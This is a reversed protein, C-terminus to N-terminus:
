PVLGYPEEMPEDLKRHLSTLLEVFADIEASTKAVTWDNHSALVFPSLYQMYADVIMKRTPPPQALKRRILSPLEAIPGLSTASPLLSVPSEGLMLVPKGLLAAELGMTGQISVVLAAAEVFERSDVFPEVLEVGPLSLMQRLQGETYNAADSKHIKVLLSHSPPTARALAEIVWIQKSFFPAWVDISSEPQTHLGFLVFPKSPPAVNTPFKKTAGHAKRVRLLHKVAAFVSFDSRDQTYKLFDSDRSRRLTRATAAIRKPLLLLENWYSPRSPTLYAPVRVKRSEFEALAREARSRLEVLDPCVVEVRAAPSMQNCLCVFGPPIVSFNLAFWPINLKRAVAQTIGSHVADFGGIVVSPRIESFLSILRRALFTAYSLAEQYSLKSVVRDGLIMNHVTPLGEAELSALLARDPEPMQQHLCDRFFFLNNGRQEQPFNAAVDRPHMVCSVRFTSREAVVSWLERVVRQDWGVVVIHFPCGLTM